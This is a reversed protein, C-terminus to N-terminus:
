YQPQRCNRTGTIAHVVGGGSGPHNDLQKFNKRMRGSFLRAIQTFKKKSLKGMNRLREKFIADSDLFNSAQTSDSGTTSGYSYQNNDSELTSMFDHNMRLERVFEENQLLIAFREDELYQAMEPDDNMLTIQRNRKNEEMKQQLFSSSMMNAHENNANFNTLKRQTDNLTIRLFDASLEGLVPPEWRYKYRLSDQSIIQNKLLSSSMAADTQDGLVFNLDKSYSKPNMMASQGDDIFINSNYHHENNKNNMAAKNRKKKEQSENNIQLLQDITADVVGNNARLIAEIVDEEMDPFMHKFDSMAQNFELQTVGSSNAPYM